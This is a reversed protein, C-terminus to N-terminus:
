VTVSVTVSLSEGGCDSLLDWTTCTMADASVVIVVGAFTQVCDVPCVADTGSAPM